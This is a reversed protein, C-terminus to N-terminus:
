EEHVVGLAALQQRITVEVSRQVERRIMDDSQHIINMEIAWTIPDVYAAFHIPVKM